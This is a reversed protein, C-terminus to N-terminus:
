YSFAFPIMEPMTLGDNAILLVCTVKEPFSNTPLHILNM